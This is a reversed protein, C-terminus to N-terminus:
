GLMYDRIAQIPLHQTSRQHSLEQTTHAKPWSGTICACISVISWASRMRPFSRLCIQMPWNRVVLRFQLIAKLWPWLQSQQTPTRPLSIAPWAPYNLTVYQDRAAE